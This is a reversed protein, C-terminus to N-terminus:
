ADLKEIEDETLERFCQDVTVYKVGAEETLWGLRCYRPPPETEETADEDINIRLQLSPPGWYDDVTDTWELVLQANQQGWDLDTGPTLDVSSVVPITTSYSAISGSAVLVGKIYLRPTPGGADVPATGGHACAFTPTRDSTRNDSDSGGLDTAATMDPAPPRATFFGIETPSDNGSYTIVRVDTTAGDAVTVRVVGRDLSALSQSAAAWTGDGNNTIELPITTTGDTISGTLVAEAAVGRGEVVVAGANADGDYVRDNGDAGLGQNILVGTPVAGVGDGCCGSDGLAIAALGWLKATVFEADLDARFGAEDAVIPLCRIDPGLSVLGTDSVTAPELDDYVMVRQLSAGGPASSGGILVILEQEGTETPKSLLRVPGADASQLVTEGEETAAYRHATETVNVIAVCPGDVQAAGIVDDKLPEVLVGLVGDIYENGEFWFNDRDIGDLLYEGLEVVSGRDLDAGTKNQVKVLSEGGSALGKSQGLRQNQQYYQTAESVANVWSAKKTPGQAIPTGAGIPQFKSM